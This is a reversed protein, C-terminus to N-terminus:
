GSLEEYSEVISLDSELKADLEPSRADLKIREHQWDLEDKGRWVSYVTTNPVEVIGFVIALMYLLTEIAQWCCDSGGPVLRPLRYV